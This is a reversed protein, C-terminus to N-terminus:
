GSGMCGRAFTLFLFKYYCLYKNKKSGTQYYKRKQSLKKALAMRTKSSIAFNKQRLRFILSAQNKESYILLFIILSKQFFFACCCAFCRLQLRLSFKLFYYLM